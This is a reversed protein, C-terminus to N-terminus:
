PPVPDALSSQPVASTFEMPTLGFLIFFGAIMGICAILLITTM